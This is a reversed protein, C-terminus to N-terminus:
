RPRPADSHCAGIGALGSPVLSSPFFDGCRDCAALTAAMALLCAVRLARTPWAVSSRVEAIVTRRPQM